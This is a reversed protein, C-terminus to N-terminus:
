HLEPRRLRRSCSREARAAISCRVTDKERAQPLQAAVIRHYGLFAVDRISGDRPPEPEDIWEVSCAFVGLPVAAVPRDV